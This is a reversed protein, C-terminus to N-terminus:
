RQPLQHECLVVLNREKNEIIQINASSTRSSCIQMINMIMMPYNGAFDSTWQQKALRWGRAGAHSGPWALRRITGEKVKFREVDVRSMTEAEGERSVEQDDESVVGANM